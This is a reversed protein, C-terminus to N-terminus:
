ENVSIIEDINIFSLEENNDMKVFTLTKYKKLYLFNSFLSLAQKFDVFQPGRWFLGEVIMREWKFDDKLPWFFIDGNETRMLIEDSDSIPEIQWICPCVGEIKGRKELSKNEKSYYFVSGESTGVWFGSDDQSSNPFLPSLSQIQQDVIVENVFQGKDDFVVMSNNLTGAFFEGGDVHSFRLSNCGCIGNELSVNRMPKINNYINNTIIKFIKVQNGKAAVAHSNNIASSSYNFLGGKALQSNERMEIKGEKTLWFIIRGDNHLSIVWVTNASISDIGKSHKKKKSIIEM